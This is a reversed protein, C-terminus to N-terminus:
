NIIFCKVSGFCLACISISFSEVVAEITFIHHLLNVCVYLQKQKNCVFPLLLIAYDGESCSLTRLYTPLGPRADHVLVKAKLDKVSCLAYNFTNQTILKTLKRLFQEM